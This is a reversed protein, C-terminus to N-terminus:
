KIIFDARRWQTQRGASNSAHVELEYSGAPLKEIALRLGIPIVANGSVILDAASMQGTDMVLSATKLDTIRVRYYIATDSMEQAPRYIEFYLYLPRQRALHPRVDADPFFQVGKSVRPTPVVPFPSVTAAERLVWLADRLVGVVIVDSVMVAHPDLQDVRLPIQAQGFHRGDSVVVRLDYQGPPLDIQGDFVSPMPGNGSPGAAKPLYAMVLNRCSVSDTFQRAVEGTTKYAVGLIYLVEDNQCPYRWSSRHLKFAASLQVMAPAKSDHVEVVYTYDKPTLTVDAGAFSSQTALRLVGSSWFTFTRVKVKISGREQSNAFRLMRESLNTRLLGNNDHVDSSNPECYRDRNTHVDRDAVVISISHCQGPQIASPVYGILYTASPLALALGPPPPRRWTGGTTSDFIWQSTIDGAPFDSEKFYNIKQEIGNDFVHFNKAALGQAPPPLRELLAHEAPPLAQDAIKSDDSKKRTRDWVTAEVIVQRSNAYFTPIGPASTTRQPAKDGSQTQAEVTLPLVVTFCVFVGLLSRSSM